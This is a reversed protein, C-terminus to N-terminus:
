TTDEEHAKTHSIKKMFLSVTRFEHYTHKICILSPNLLILFLICLQGQGRNFCEYLNKLHGKSSTKAHDIMYLMLKNVNENHQRRCRAEQHQRRKRAEQLIRLRNQIRIDPNSGDDTLVTMTESELNVALQPTSEISEVQEPRISEDSPYSNMPSRAKGFSTGDFKGDM